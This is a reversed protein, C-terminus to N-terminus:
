AGTGMSPLVPDTGYPALGLASLADGVTHFSGTVLVTGGRAAVRAGELAGPFDRIVRAQGQPLARLAVEPEWIRGAPATPPVTLILTDMREALQSLMAGWDKDSLIGAVVVLPRALPLEELARLLAAVGAPNHAVDFIWDQGDIRERQLRGPWRVDAIGQSLAGRGPRSQAPLLELASVALATNWAQHAGILPTQLDLEGWAESALRFHTGALSVEIGTVSAEDLQFLPAGVVASQRRFIELTTAAREGTVVPVGSKIIGAKEAAIVELTGGLYDVHDIAVNTLVVLEPDIVNTSDLRGGLGVEVVATEIGAEAFCLFALATTAEFFSAGEREIAPWLRAAAALLAAETIPVGDVQIRERFSCLHPSTYLGVRHGAARLVAALTASVSGKGNTGGVHLSRFARQPDGVAGLLQETRELGWRIGGSLRPFLEGILEAYTM